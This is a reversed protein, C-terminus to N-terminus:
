WLVREVGFVGRRHAQICVALVSSRGIECRASATFILGANVSACTHALVLHLSTILLCNRVARSFEFGCRTTPAKFTEGFTRLRIALSRTVDDRLEYISRWDKVRKNRVTLCFCFCFCRENRYLFDALCFNGSNQRSFCAASPSWYPQCSSALHMCAAHSVTYREFQASHRCVATLLRSRCSATLIKRYWWSHLVTVGRNWQM